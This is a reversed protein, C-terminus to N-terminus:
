RTSVLAALAQAEKDFRAVFESDRAFRPPLLKVAVLRGLSSQRARWVEGMGGQGLLELLEYGPVHMAGTAGPPESDPSEEPRSRAVTKELSPGPAALGRGDATTVEAQPPAPRVDARKVEFRIGCGCVVPQGSVYVGVDHLKGCNPCAQTVVSGLSRAAAM